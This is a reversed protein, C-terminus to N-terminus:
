PLYIPPAQAGTATTHCANCNGGGQTPAAATAPVLTNTMPTSTPCTAAAAMAPQTATPAAALLQTTFFNGNSASVLKTVTPVGNMVLTIEITAGSYPQTGAADHYITGAYSYAPAGTGLGLTQNHCAANSLCGGVMTGDDLSDVNTTPNVPQVCNASVAGDGSGAGSDTTMQNVLVSGVDCAGLLIFILAIRTM